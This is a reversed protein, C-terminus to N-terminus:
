KWNLLGSYKSNSICHPPLLLDLLVSVLSLGLKSMTSQLIEVIEPMRVPTVV